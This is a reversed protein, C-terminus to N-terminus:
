HLLGKCNYSICINNNELVIKLKLLIDAARAQQPVSNDVVVKLNNRLLFYILPTADAIIKIRSEQSLVNSPSTIQDM